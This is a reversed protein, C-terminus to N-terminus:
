NKRLEVFGTVMENIENKTYIEPALKTPTFSTAHEPLCIHSEKFLSARELIKRINDKTIPIMEGAVSRAYGSEDRYVGYEDKQEWRFKRAGYIDYARRGCEYRIDISPSPAEDFLTLADKDISTQGVPQCLQHSGIETTDAKQHEDPVAPINDPISHQKMFLNDPGNALQLIDAIDEGSVQLIRGDMARAHGDPERFIGFEDPTLFGYDFSINKKTFLSLKHKSHSDISTSIPTDISPLRKEASNPNKSRISKRSTGESKNTSANMKEVITNHCTIQPAFSRIYTNTVRSPIPINGKEKEFAAAKIDISIGPTTDISAYIRKAPYPHTDVSASYVRDISSPSTNNFSHSSYREDHMAIELAREKWYDEDYEETPDENFSPIVTEVAFSEHFGSDAWSGISYDDCGKKNPQQFAIDTYCQDPLTFHDVPQNGDLSTPYHEDTMPSENSDISLSTHTDISESYETEYEAGCHSAAIYGLDNGLEVLNVQQRLVRVLDYHVDPNILTLCLRNTNMDCVAGLTAM